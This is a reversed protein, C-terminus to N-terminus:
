RQPSRFANARWPNGAKESWNDNDIFLKWPAIFTLDAFDSGAPLDEYVGTVKVDYHNDIKIARDMPDADGFLAKATSASLLISHPDDLGAKSGKEMQLSLMETIVPEMFNGSKSIAKEGGGAGVGTSGGGRGM